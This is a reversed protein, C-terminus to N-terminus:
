RQKRRVIPLYIRGAAEATVTTSRPPSSSGDHLVYSVVIYPGPGVGTTDWTHQFSPAGGPALNGIAEYFQALVAEGADRVEVVATGSLSVTGSNRVTLAITVQDGPRFDEPTAALQTVEAAALGLRFSATATDLLDGVTNRLVTEVVYEGPAFGASDWQAAFSASGTVGSLTRLLLGDVLEASGYRRLTAEVVVDQAEGANQLELEVNVADGQTYATKDTALHTISVASVTYQVEFRCETYFRVDTTLANYFFPYLSLVLESRGEEDPVAEWAFDGQPYWEQENALAAVPQLPSRLGDTVPVVVLLRKAFPGGRRIM